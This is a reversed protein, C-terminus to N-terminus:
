PKGGPIVRLHHAGAPRPQAEVSAQMAQAFRRPRRGVSGDRDVVGLVHTIRRDADALPMLAMQAVMHPQGFGPEAQLSLRARAGHAVQQVADMVEPRAAPTFLSTLPMGRLEMDMLADIKHGCIRLRAVRPAVLEALFVHPLADALTEPDLANRTPLRDPRRLSDWHACVQAILPFPPQGDLGSATRDTM